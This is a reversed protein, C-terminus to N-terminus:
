SPASIHIGIVSEHQHKVSFLLIRYLLQGEVLFSIFKLFLKENKSVWMATLSKVTKCHCFHRNATM